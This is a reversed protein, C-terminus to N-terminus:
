IYWLRKKVDTVKLLDGEGIPPGACTILSSIWGDIVLRRKM